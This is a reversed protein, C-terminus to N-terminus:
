LRTTRGQGWVVFIKPLLRSLRGMFLSGQSYAPVVFERHLVQRRPSLAAPPPAPSTAHLCCSLLGARLAAVRPPSRLTTKRTLLFCLAPGKPDACFGVDRVRLRRTRRAAPKSCIGGDFLRRCLCRSRGLM